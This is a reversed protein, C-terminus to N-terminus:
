KKDKKHISIQEKIYALEEKYHNSKMTPFRKILSELQNKQSVIKELRNEIKVHVFEKLKDIDKDAHEKISSIMGHVSEGQFWEEHGYHDKLMERITKVKAMTNSFDILKKVTIAFDVALLVALIDSSIIIVTDSFLQIFKLVYPIVFHVAVVGMVGFLVSNLLCVRGKINFKYHSYDWWLTHFMKELIWSSFYEVISCLIMATFFLAVWTSLISEPLFLIVCGGFGYIPCLPGHLFGRNIFKHEFFLGVYLVESCWGVFSFIIFM